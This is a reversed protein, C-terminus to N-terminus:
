KGWLHPIRREPLSATALKRSEEMDMVDENRTKGCHMGNTLRFNGPQSSSLTAQFSHTERQKPEEPNSVVTSFKCRQDRVCAAGKM